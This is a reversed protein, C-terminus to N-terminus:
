CVCLASSHHQPLISHEESSGREGKQAHTQHAQESQTHTGQPFRKNSSQCFHCHSGRLEPHTHPSRRSRKVPPASADCDTQTTSDQKEFVNASGESPPLAAGVSDVDPLLQATACFAAKYLGFAQELSTSSDNFPSPANM